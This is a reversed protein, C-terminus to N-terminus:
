LVLWGQEISPSILGQHWLVATGTGLEPSREKVLFGACVTRSGTTRAGLGCGAYSMAVRLFGKCIRTHHPPSGMLM